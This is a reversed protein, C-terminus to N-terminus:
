GTSVLLCGTFHGAGTSVVAVEPVPKVQREGAGDRLQLCAEYLQIYGHLRGASLQGGGTNVPLEGDRAIRSGGEIFKAAEGRGCLGLSELSLISWGDYVEAIDVDGPTLRASRAWLM